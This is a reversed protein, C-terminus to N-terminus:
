SLFVNSRFLSHIRTPLNRHVSRSQSLGTGRLHCSSHTVDTKFRHVRHQQQKVFRAVMAMSANTCCKLQQRELVLEPFTSTIGHADMETLGPLCHQRTLGQVLLNRITIDLKNLHILLLGTVQRSPLPAQRSCFSKMMTRNTLSCVFLWSCSTGSLFYHMLRLALESWM